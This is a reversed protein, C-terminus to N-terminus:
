SWASPISSCSSSRRPRARYLISLILSHIFVSKGSNTAGAVLLHPMKQLDASLPEGAASLGVAFTLLPADPPMASSELAERLV